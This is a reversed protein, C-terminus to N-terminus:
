AKPAILASLALIAPMFSPDISTAKAFFTRAAPEDSRTRAAIGRYFTAEARERPTLTAALAQELLADGRHPDEGNRFAMMTFFQGDQLLAPGYGPHVTLATAVADRARSFCDGKELVSAIGRSAAILVKALTVHSWPQDGHVVCAQEALSIATGMDGGEATQHILDEWAKQETLTAILAAAAIDNRPIATPKFHQFGPETGPALGAWVRLIAYRPTGWVEPIRTIWAPLEDEMETLTQQLSHGAAHHRRTHELFYVMIRELQDLEADRALPGHGPIIATSAFGRIGVLANVWGDDQLGESQSPQGFIPFSGTMVSDGAALVRESESWILTPDATEADDGLHFKLVHNGLDISGIDDTFLDPQIPDDGLEFGRSALFNKQRPMREILATATRHSACIQAGAAKFVANGATHDWHYHTNIAYLVPKKFTSEIHTLLRKASSVNVQTDVVAIGKDGIFVGSNVINRWIHVRDTVPELSGYSRPAFPNPPKSMGACPVAM